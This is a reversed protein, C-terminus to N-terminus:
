LVQKGRETWCGRGLAGMGQRSGTLFANSGQAVDGEGTSCGEDELDLQEITGSSIRGEKPSRCCRSGEEKLGAVEAYPECEKDLVRSSPMVEKHWMGKGQAAARM